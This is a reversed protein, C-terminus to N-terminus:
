AHEMGAIDTWQKIQRIIDEEAVNSVLLKSYTIAPDLKIHQQLQKPLQSIDYNFSGRDAFEGNDSLAWSISSNGIDFLINM